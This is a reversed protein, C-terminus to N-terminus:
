QRISIQVNVVDGAGVGFFGASTNNITCRENNKTKINEETYDRKHTNDQTMICKQQLLNFCEADWWIQLTKGQSFIMNLLIGQGVVPGGNDTEM